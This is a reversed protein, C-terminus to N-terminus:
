SEHASTVGQDGLSCLYCSCTQLAYVYSTGIQCTVLCPTLAGPGRTGIQLLRTDRFRSAFSGCNPGRPCTSLTHLASKVTLGELDNPANGINGTKWQRFRSTM